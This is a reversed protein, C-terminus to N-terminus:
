PGSASVQPLPGDSHGPPGRLFDELVQGWLSWGARDDSIEHGERGYAPLIHLDAAGGQATWAHEMATAIFPPFYSDNEAYIWLTPARATSGLVGAAEILREQSCIAGKRGGAHAGRGGSFNVVGRLGPPNRAALALSAWGGSSVGVVFVRQDDVFPQKRMYSLVAEIDDAANRGAQLHNPALCNDGAEVMPGGTAGHGRRQPIVVVFNREVFWRSLWYFVPMSVAERTSADTGHNIIVLPLRRESSQLSADLRISQEDQAPRFVTSRLGIQPDGSPLIWLQERM